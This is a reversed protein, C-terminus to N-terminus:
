LILEYFGKEKVCFYNVNDRRFNEKIKQQLYDPRSSDLIVSNFQFNNVINHYTNKNKGTYILYDVNIKERTPLAVSDNIIALKKNAFFIFNNKIFFQAEKNILKKPLDHTFIIQPEKLGENNWYKRIHFIMKDEDHVLSSDAIFVHENGSIFNFASKGNINFVVIRKKNLNDAKKALSFVSFVLILGLGVALHKKSKFLFALFFVFIASYIIWTDIISHSIGESLSYPLQEIVYVSKNLFYVSYKVVLAVFSSVVPIWSTIFLLIGSYLIATALPIVLLNSLIFYNPFQHYYLIGLPFTALQAAISVCTIAWANRILWNKPHILNNFRPQFAVIGLVALYSLQFGVAMILFPDILLLVLASAALTNYINSERSFMTAGVVFSLMTASRMVSPSLGTIFAYSWLFLIILVGKLLIQWRKKNMFFLAKSIALFIIGVHLGSVALVHMAGSSSYAQKLQADLEDKYGLMLASLVAYEQGAINNEKFVHLLYQQTELATKIIKNGANINTVTISEPKLYAQHYINKFSLFRKYNFENPNQPPKIVAPNTKFCIVDGYKLKSNVSDKSFYVLLNGKVKVAAGDEIVSQLEIVSKYSKDGEKLPETIYGIYYNDKNNYNSFHDNDDIEINLATIINGACLFFLSILVGYVWRKSYNNKIFGSYHLWLMVVLAFGATCLTLPLNIGVFVASVIGACFPLLLRVLPVRNWYFHKM